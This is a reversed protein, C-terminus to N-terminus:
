PHTEPRSTVLFKVPLRIPYKSFKVLAELMDSVIAQTEAENITGNNNLQGGCEDLAEIVFLITELSDKLGLLPKYLLTDVQVEVRQQLINPNCKLETLLAEAFKASQLAFLQALTPVVCRVDRQASLGTSRSCFFSGGLLIHENSFVLKCISLAIASKGTGAMGTLWFIQPGTLDNIWAEIDSLIQVRTGEMCSKEIQSGYVAKAVYRSKSV